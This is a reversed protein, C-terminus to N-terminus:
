GLGSQFGVVEGGDADGVLALGGHQPIAFGTLRDVVGDDPLIAAGGAGAVFERGGTVRLIDLLAGPEDDIGVEGAAFEAPQEVVNGARALTSLLAFEGKAGDVGPEDPVEGVAQMM